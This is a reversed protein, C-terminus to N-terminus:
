SRFLTGARPIKAAIEDRIASAKALAEARTHAYRFPMEIILLGGGIDSGHADAIPLAMDWFSGVRQPVASPKRSTVVAMDSPSSLKGIKSPIDSAIIVHDRSGPLTVHLGIKQIDAHERKEAIVLREAYPARFHVTTYQAPAAGAALPACSLAAALWFSRM